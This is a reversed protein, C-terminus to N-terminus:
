KKKALEDRKVRLQEIIKTFQKDYEGDGKTMLKKLESGIKKIQNLSKASGIKNSYEKYISGGTTNVKIDLSNEVNSNNNNSSNNLNSNLNGQSEKEDDQGKRPPLPLPPGKRPPGKRPPLPPPPGKRQIKCSKNWNVPADQNASMYGSTYSNIIDISNINKDELHKVLINKLTKLVHKPNKRVLNMFTGLTYDERINNNKHSLGLKQSDSNGISGYDFLPIKCREGKLMGEPRINSQSIIYKMDNEISSLITTMANNSSNKSLTTFRNIWNETNEGAKTESLDIKKGDVSISEGRWKYKQKLELQEQEQRWKYKQELELQEQEQEFENQGPFKESM